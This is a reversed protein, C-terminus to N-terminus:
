PCHNNIIMMGCVSCRPTVRGGGSYCEGGSEHMVARSCGQLPLGQKLPMLSPMPLKHKSQSQAMCHCQLMLLLWPVLNQIEHRLPRLLQLGVSSVGYLCDYGSLMPMKRMTLRCIQQVQMLMIAGKGATDAMDALCIGLKTLSPMGLTVADSMYVM